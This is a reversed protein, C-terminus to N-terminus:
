YYDRCDMGGNRGLCWPHQPYRSEIGYQITTEPRKDMVPTMDRFGIFVRCARGPSESLARAMFELIGSSCSGYQPHLSAPAVM